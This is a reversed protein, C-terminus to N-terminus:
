TMTMSPSISSLTLGDAYTGKLTNDPGETLEVHKIQHTQPNDKLIAYFESYTLEKETKINSKDQVAMLLLFVVGMIVWFWVNGNPNRAPRPGKKIPINTNPQAM